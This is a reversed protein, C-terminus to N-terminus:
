DVDAVQDASHMSQLDVHLIQYSASLRRPYLNTYPLVSQSCFHSNEYFAFSEVQEQLKGVFAVIIFSTCQQSRLNRSIM